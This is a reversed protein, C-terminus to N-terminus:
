PCRRAFFRNLANTGGPFYGIAFRDWMTTEIHRNELYMKANRSIKLQEHCWRVTAQCTKFFQEKKESNRGRTRKFDSLADDPIDIAYRDVLHHVSEIQTMNEAKAIFSILDGGSHCGFCYYIQKDPSVTFSADTEQHFPCSGKWYGGARKLQVYEQVVDLISLKSKVVNFISM